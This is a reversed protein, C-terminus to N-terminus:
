LEFEVLISSKSVSITFSKQCGAPAKHSLNIFDDDDFERREQNPSHYAHRGSGEGGGAESCGATM